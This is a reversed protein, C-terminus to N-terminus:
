AELQVEYCNKQSLANIGFGIDYDYIYDDGDDDGGGDDNDDAM